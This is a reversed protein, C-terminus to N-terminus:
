EMAAYMEECLATYGAGYSSTRGQRWRAEKLCQQMLIEKREQASKGALMENLPPQPTHAM